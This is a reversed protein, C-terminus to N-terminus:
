EGGLSLGSLDDTLSAEERYKSAKVHEASTKALPFQLKSRYHDDEVFSKFTRFQRGGFLFCCQEADFRISHNVISDEGTQPNRVIVNFAFFGDKLQSESYRFLFTGPQKGTLLEAAESGRCFGHFYSERYVCVLNNLCEQAPGFFRLFLRFDELRVRNPQKTAKTVNALFHIIANELGPRDQPLDARIEYARVLNRALTEVQVAPERHGDEGSMQADTWLQMIADNVAYESALNRFEEHYADVNHAPSLPSEKPFESKAERVSLQDSPAIVLTPFNRGRGLDPPQAVLGAQLQPEQAVQVPSSLQSFWFRFNAPYTAHQAEIMKRAESLPSSNHELKVFGRHESEGRLLVLFMKDQEPIVVSSASEAEDEPKRKKTSRSPKPRARGGDEKKMM